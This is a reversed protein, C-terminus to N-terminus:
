ESIFLLRSYISCASLLHEKSKPDPRFALFDEGYFFYLMRFKVSGWVLVSVCCFVFNELYVQFKIQPILPTIPKATRSVFGPPPSIKRVRGSRGQPGGLRRSMRYRTRKRLSPPLPVAHSHGPRPMPTAHCTHNLRLSAPLLGPNHGTIPCFDPRQLRVLARFWIKFGGCQWM